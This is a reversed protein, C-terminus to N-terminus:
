PKMGKLMQAAAVNQPDIELVKELDKRAAAPDRRGLHAEALALHSATSQPYFELNLQAWALADDPKNVALSRKALTPLLSERFDYAQTGLYKQRLDRYLAVAAGDGKGMMTDWLMDALQRPNTVGHHCTLCQVRVIPRGPQGVRTALRANIENVMTLMARATTKADKDDSAFDIPPPGQSRGRGAGAAVEEPALMVPPPQVHCYTCQVGLAQTFQQMLALIEQPRSDKPLVQLNAPPAQAALAIPATLSSLCVLIAARM